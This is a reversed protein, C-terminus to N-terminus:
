GEEQPDMKNEREEQPLMTNEKERQLSATNVGQRQLLTVNVWQGQSYMMKEEREKPLSIKNKHREEPPTMMSPGPTMMKEEARTPHWEGVILLNMEVEGEGKEITGVLNM